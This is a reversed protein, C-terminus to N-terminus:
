SFFATSDESPRASCISTHRSPSVSSNASAGRRVSSGCASPPKAVCQRIPTTLEIANSGAVSVAPGPVDICPATECVYAITVPEREPSQCMIVPAILVQLMEPGIPM